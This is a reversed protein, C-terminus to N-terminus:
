PSGPHSLPLSDAQLRLLGLNLGQTLFIGRSSSIPIWGLIRAQLIEHVSSGQPSCDITDCLTLCLKAVSRVCRNLSLWCSSSEGWAPEIQLSLIQLIQLAGCPSRETIRGWREGAEVMFLYSWLATQFSTFLIFGNQQIKWKLNYEASYTALQSISKCLQPWGIQCEQCETSKYKTRQTRTHMSLQKLWTWSKTVRHGSARWARRGMPNELCSYWLPQWARRWPDEQGLSPVQM